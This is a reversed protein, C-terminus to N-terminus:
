RTLGPVANPIMYEQRLIKTLSSHHIDNSSLNAVLLSARPIMLDNGADLIQLSKSSLLRKRWFRVGQDAGEGVCSPWRAQATLYKDSEERAEVVDCRTATQGEVFGNEIHRVGLLDVINYVGEM